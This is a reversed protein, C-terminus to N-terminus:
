IKSEIKTFRPITKGQWNVTELWSALPRVFSLKEDYQAQYIVCLEDTAELIAIQTVKYLKDSSKYHTYLGGVDVQSKASELELLLSKENKHAM